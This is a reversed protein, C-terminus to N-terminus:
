PQKESCSANVQTIHGAGVPFRIANSQSRGPWALIEVCDDATGGFQIQYEGPSVQLFGGEGATTTATPDLSWTPGAASFYQEARVKNGAADFLDFTVGAFGVSCTIRGTDPHPYPSMVEGYLSELASDSGMSFEHDLGDVPVVLAKLYPGYGEKRATYSTEGVPLWLKAKGNADTTVCNATDTQCLEVDPLGRPIGPWDEVRIAVPVFGEPPGAVEACGGFPLLALVWLLRAFLRM